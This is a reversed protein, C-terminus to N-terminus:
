CSFDAADLQLCDVGGDRNHELWAWTNESIEHPVARVIQNDRRVPFNTLSLNSGYRFFMFQESFVRLFLSVHGTALGKTQGGLELDSPSSNKHVRRTHNYGCIVYLTLPSIPPTYRGEWSFRVGCSQEHHYISHFPSPTCGVPGGEGPQQAPKVMM